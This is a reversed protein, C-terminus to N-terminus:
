AALAQAIELRRGREDLAERIALPVQRRAKARPWPMENVVRGGPYLAEHEAWNDFGLRDVNDIFNEAPANEALILAHDELEVHYYVFFSPVETERLISTGNVLAFVIPEGHAIRLLFPAFVQM